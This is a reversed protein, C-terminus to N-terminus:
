QWRLGFFPPLDPLLALFVTTCFSVKHYISHYLKKNLSLVKHRLGVKPRLPSTQMSVVRHRQTIVTSHELVNEKTRHLTTVTSLISYLKDTPQPLVCRPPSIIPMRTKGNGAMGWKMQPICYMDEQAHTTCTHATLVFQQVCDSDALICTFCAHPIARFIIM